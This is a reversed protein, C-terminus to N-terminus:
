FSGNLLYDDIGKGENWKKHVVTLGVLEAAKDINKLAKKVNPNVPIKDTGCKDMDLMEFIKTAGLDKVRQFEQQFTNVSKAAGAFAIFAAPTGFRKYYLYAAVTAKLGGETLCVSTMGPKFCTEMCVSLGACGQPRNKTSLTAYRAIYNKDRSRIELMLIKGNNCYPIFFGQTLIRIRWKGASYYFGPVGKVTYGSNILAQPLKDDANEPTSKFGIKRIAAPSLGRKMLNNRDEDNLTLLSLMKRYTRDIEDFSICEAQEIKPVQIVESGGNLDIKKLTAIAQEHTQNLMDSVLDIIGGGTGCRPCRWVQKRLDVCLHAKKDDGCIPCNFYIESDTKYKPIMGIKSAVLGIDPLM